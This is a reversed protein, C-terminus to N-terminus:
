RQYAGFKAIKITFPKEQINVFAKQQRRKDDTKM